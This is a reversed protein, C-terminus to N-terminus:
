PQEDDRHVPGTDGIFLEAAVPDVTSNTVRGRPTCADIGYRTEPVIEM